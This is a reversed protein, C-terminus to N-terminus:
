DGARLGTVYCLLSFPDRSLPTTSCLTGRNHSQGKIDASGHGELQAREGGATLYEIYAGGDPPSEDRSTPVRIGKQM